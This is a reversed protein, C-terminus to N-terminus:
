AAKGKHLPIVDASSEFGDLMDAYWQMMRKRERLHQAHDYAAVVANQNIHHLQREVADPHFGAERLITTATARFGHVTVKGKYGLAYLCNLMANESMPKNSKRSQPFMLTNEGSLDHLRKLTAIAQRSLPVIQDGHKPIKMRAAPIHWESRKFDIERWEAKRIEDTRLFTLVALKLGLQAITHRNSSELKHWFDPLEARKLYARHKADPKATLAGRTTDAAAPDYLIRNKGYTQQAYRFVASCYQKMRHATEIVGRKEILKIAALLEPMDINAIPRKGLAPFIEREMRHLVKEAHSPKWRALKTKHWERAVAEFTHTDDWRIALKREQRAQSPNIGESLQKRNEGLKKRADTLSIRPYTGLSISKEKGAYWYRMLWYKEKNGIPPVVLFLGDGDKLKFLKESPVANKLQLDTLLEKAM